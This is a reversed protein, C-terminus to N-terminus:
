HKNQIKSNPINPAGEMRLWQVNEKTSSLKLEHRLENRLDNLLPDLELISTTPYNSLMIHTKKIQSTTGFLQIDAIAGEIHQFYQSNKEPHRQVSNALNRYASILYEIQIDKLRNQRDRKLNLYHVCYWGFVVVLIAITSLIINWTKLELNCM